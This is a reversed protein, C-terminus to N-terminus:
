ARHAVLTCFEDIAAILEDREPGLTAVHGSRHLTLRRVQGSVAAAVGDAGAPDVVDDLASTILLLPATVAALDTALTGAAMELLATIPLREYGNEGAALPPGDIWDHGRSQRWELGDVADPDPAPPNIAVVARCRDDAALALALSGGMSQGVVVDAPWQGAASLWDAWGVHQLAAPETGHGPLTPAHVKHGLATLGDAVPRMTGATGGLGHLLLIRAM